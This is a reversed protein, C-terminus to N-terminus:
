PQLLQSVLAAAPMASLLADIRDLMGGHGPLISGSDKAGAQRKLLSEFLDGFVSLAALAVVLLVWVAPALGPALHRAAPVLLMAYAAAAALGGYVGEWSKAPSIQPALKRRGFARGCFYAATDAIWVIAMAALVVWPSLAHLQVLAVWTAVLIGGGLLAAPLGEPLRWRRRLWLPVVLAWFATALGCVTFVIAPPWGAGTRPAGVQLLALAVILTGAVVAWHRFGKRGTLAAWEAAGIGIVVLLALAFHQTSLAFLAALVLPILALATLIRTALM